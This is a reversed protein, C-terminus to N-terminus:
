YDVEPFLVRFTDLAPNAHQMVDYKDRPIYAKTEKEEYVVEIKCNLNPRGSKARLYTLMRILHPKIESEIFSNNVIISFMDEGELRLEKDMLQEALKPLEGKMAELLAEWCEHLKAEDLPPAAVAPHTVTSVDVPVTKISISGVRRLRGSAVPHEGSPAPQQPAAAAPAEPQPRLPASPAPSLPNDVAITPETRSVAVLQM